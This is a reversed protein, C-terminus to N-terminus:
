GFPSKFGEVSRFLRLQIPWVTFLDEWFYVEVRQRVLEERERKKEGKPEEGWRRKYNHRLM